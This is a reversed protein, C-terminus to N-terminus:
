TLPLIIHQQIPRKTWHDLTVSPAQPAGPHKAAGADRNRSEEFVQLISDLYSLEHLQERTDFDLLRAPDEVMRGFAQRYGLADSHANKEILSCGYGQAFM